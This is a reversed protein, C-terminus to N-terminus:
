HSESYKERAEEAEAIHGLASHAVGYGYYHQATWTRAQDEPVKMAFLEEWRGLRVLLHIKVGLATEAYM